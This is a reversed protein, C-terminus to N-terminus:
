ITSEGEKVFSIHSILYMTAAVGGAMDFFLDSLSDLPNGITAGPISVQVFYEYGEWLVGIIFVSLLTVCAVCSITILKDKKAFPGLFYMWTGMLGIWLGGLFHMPMDFWWLLSYWYFKISLTNVLFIFVILLAIRNFLQNKM